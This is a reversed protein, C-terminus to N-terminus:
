LSEFAFALELAIHQDPKARFWVALPDHLNSDEDIVVTLLLDKYTRYTLCFGAGFAPVVRVRIQGALFICLLLVLLDVDLVAWFAPGFNLLDVPAVM